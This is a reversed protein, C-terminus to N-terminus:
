PNSSAPGLKRTPHQLDTTRHHLEKVAPYIERYVSEFITNYTEVNESLPSITTGQHRLAALADSSDRYVGAGLGGLIAAGMATAEEVEAIEITQNLVTAKIQMLLRNRTNGGIALIRQPRQIQKHATLADLSLRFEFALGELVARFLTGRTADTTLGTFVGRSGPDNHPPNGLRLHPQYCVGLSGPPVREAERILTDYDVDTGLIGRLWDVSAGSAYIGGLTYYRGPAVHPGTTYGQACLKPDIVPHTQPICMAEATGLSNLLINPNTAGVALAGCLHDHGGTSVLTTEPLGTERAVHPLVPGLRTGAPVVPAFLDPRIHVTGLLDESWALRHIDLALTRSALSYDSAKEGCLRYAIYDAINLWSVAKAFADPRNERFWLIKCLGFIPRPPVGTLAYIRDRGYASELLEAQPKTRADFWAIIDEVPQGKTDLLVGSEGMSAIAIGTIRHPISLQDVATRLVRVTTEWLEEPRHYAWTPRPYHTPTPASARAQIQGSGDFVLAKINTTGVDIGALLPSASM